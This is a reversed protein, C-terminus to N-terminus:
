RIMDDEPQNSKFTIYKKSQVPVEQTDPTSLFSKPSRLLLTDLFIRQQKSHCINKNQINQFPLCKKFVKFVLFKLYLESKFFM